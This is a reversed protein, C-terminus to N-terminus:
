TVMDLQHLVALDDGLDVWGPLRGSLDCAFESQEISWQRDMHQGISPPQDTEFREMGFGSVSHRNWSRAM